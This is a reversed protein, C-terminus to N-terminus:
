PQKVLLRARRNKARCAETKEVCRPQDSGVSVISIRSPEVGKSVLYQMIATARKEGVVLNGRSTGLDDTHGEILVEAGPHGQLWRVVGDLAKADVRALTVQGSRFRVESLMPLATFGNAAPAHAVPTDTAPPPTATTV